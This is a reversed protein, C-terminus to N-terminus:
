TGAHPHRQRERREQRSQDPERARDGQGAQLLAEDATVVRKAAKPYRLKVWQTTYRARDPKKAFRRAARAIHGCGGKLRPSRPWCGAVQKGARVAVFRRLVASKGGKTFRLGGSHALLGNYTKTDGFGAFIPFTYGADSSTAAGVTSVSM